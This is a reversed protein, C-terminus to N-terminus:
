LAGATKSTGKTTFVGREILEKRSKGNIDLRMKIFPRENAVTIIQEILNKIM